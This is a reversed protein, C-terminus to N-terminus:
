SEDKNLGILKIWLNERILDIAACCLFIMIAIIFVFVPFLNSHLYIETIPIIKKWIIIRGFISDHLLFIGFTTEAITNIVKNSKLNINRFLVFLLVSCIPEILYLLFNELLMEITTTELFMSKHIDIKYNAVSIILWGVFFLVIYILNNYIMNKRASHRESLLHIVAGLCYGMIGQQIFVYREEVINGFVYWIVLLVGLIYLYYKGKEYLYHILRNLSPHILIVLIYAPVFWWTNTVPLILSNFASWVISRVSMYEPLGNVLFVIIGIVTSFAGYFIAELIVKKLKIEESQYLFYGSIM